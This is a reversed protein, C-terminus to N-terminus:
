GNMLAAQVVKLAAELRAKPNGTGPVAARPHLAEQAAQVAAWLRAETVQEATMEPVSLDLAPMARPDVKGEPTCEYINSAAPRFPTGAAINKAHYGLYLTGDLNRRPLDSPTWAGVMAVPKLQQDGTVECRVFRDFSDHYHVVQGPKLSAYFRAGAEGLSRFMGEWAAARQIQQTTFVSTVGAHDPDDDTVKAEWVGRGRSRTVVWM